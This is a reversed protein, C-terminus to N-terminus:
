SLDCMVKQAGALLQSVKEASVKRKGNVCAASIAGLREIQRAHERRYAGADVLLRNLGPLDWGAREDDVQLDRQRALELLRGELAVGALAGAARAHGSKLLSRATRLTRDPRPEGPLLTPVASALIALQMGLLHVFTRQELGPDFLGALGERKESQPRARLPDGLITSITTRQEQDSHYYSDFERRREPLVREMLRLTQTYWAQYRENVDRPDISESQMCANLERGSTLLVGLQFRLHDREDM